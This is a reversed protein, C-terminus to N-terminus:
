LNSIVQDSTYDQRPVDNQFVADGLIHQGVQKSFNNGRGLIPSQRRTEVIITHEIIDISNDWFSIM